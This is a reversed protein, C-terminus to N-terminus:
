DKKDMGMIDQRTVDEDQEASTSTIVGGSVILKMAEDPKMKLVIIDKKPVLLLFGSTPNPTTPLFVNVTDGGLINNIEGSGQSTIFALVWLGKRPYEILVVEKFANSKSSLITSFVQKITNYITKIIPIRNWIVREVLNILYNGLLNTAIFGLIIMFIVTIVIGIGPITALVTDKVFLSVVINDFFNIITIIIYLTVIIPLSTLLGAVFFKKVFHLFSREKKIKIEQM